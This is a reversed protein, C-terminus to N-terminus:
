MRQKKAPREHILGLFSLLDSLSEPPNSLVGRLDM